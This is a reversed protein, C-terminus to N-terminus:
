LLQRAQSCAHGNVVGATDWKGSRKVKGNRRKRPYDVEAHHYVGPVIAKKRQYVLREDIAQRAPAVLPVGMHENIAALLAAYADLQVQHPGLFRGPNWGNIKWGDVVPREPQGRKMLREQYKEYVPTNFDVGISSRNIWGIGAHWAEWAMDVLQYITGDWDIVFHTSIGKANLVRYTKAAHTCVDWHAIVKDVQRNQRVKYCNPPLVLAGTEGATVVRDWAIPVLKGNLLLQDSMTPTVLEIEDDDDLELQLRLWTTPGCVGDQRLDMFGSQFEKITDVLAPGYDIGGFDEPTWLLSAASNINDQIALDTANM